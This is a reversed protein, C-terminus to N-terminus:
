SDCVGLVALNEPNKKNAFSYLLLAWPNCERPKLVISVLSCLLGGHDDNHFAAACLCVDIVGCGM